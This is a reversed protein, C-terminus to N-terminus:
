CINGDEDFKWGNIKAEEIFSEESTLYYYEDELRRYIWRMFDRLAEKIGEEIEAQFKDVYWGRSAGYGWDKYYFDFETEMEHYYHGRHRVTATVSYFARSQVAFLNDAIRHLDEDRPAYERIKKQSGKSYEYSGEFCAGDGQSAFGSFYIKTIDIGLIKGITKADEYVFDYWEYDLADPYWKDYARDIQREDMEDISFVEYNRTEPM